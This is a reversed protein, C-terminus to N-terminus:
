WKGLSPLPPKKEGKKRWRSSESFQKRPNMKGGGRWQLDMGKSSEYTISHTYKICNRVCLSCKVLTLLWIIFPQQHHHYHFSASPSTCLFQCGGKQLHPQSQATSNFSWAQLQKTQFFSYSKLKKSGMLVNTKNLWSVLFWTIDSILALSRQVPAGLERSKVFAM